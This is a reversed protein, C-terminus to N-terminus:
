SDVCVQDTKCRLTPQQYISHPFVMQGTSSSTRFIAQSLASEWTSSAPDVWTSTGSSSFSTSMENSGSFSLFLIRLWLVLSASLALALVLLSAWFALPLASLSALFPPCDLFDFATTAEVGVSTNNSAEVSDIECFGQLYSEEKACSETELNYYHVDGVKSSQM